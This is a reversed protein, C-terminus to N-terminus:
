AGRCLRKLARRVSFLRGWGNKLVQLVATAKSFKDGIISDVKAASVAPKCTAASATWGRQLDVSSAGCGAASEKNAVIEARAPDENGTGAGGARRGSREAGEGIDGPSEAAQTESAQAVQLGLRRHVPVFPLAGSAQNMDVVLSQGPEALHPVPDGAVALLPAGLAGTVVIDV